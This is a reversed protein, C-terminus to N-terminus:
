YHLLEENYKDGKERNCKRCLIQLNEEVSLGGESMPKIHDIEFDRQSPSTKGCNQCTIIGDETAKDFTKGKLEYFYQPNHEKIENLPLKEIEKPTYKVNTDHKRKLKKNKETEVEKHFIDFNNNFFTNLINSDTGYWKQYMYDIEEDPDLKNDLIYDAIKTVNLKSRMIEDFPYYEPIVSQSAYYNIINKIDNIDYPPIMEVNFYKERVDDSVIKLLEESIYEDDIEYEEFIEGLHNMFEEYAEKTSDYIIVQNCLDSGDEQEYTFMYMGIPIREEFALNELASTDVSDDLMQAFEEIKKIQLIILQADQQGSSEDDNFEVEEKFILEPNVWTVKDNWKDVFSVIYADKTGGAKEGRLARGVMQTMRIMSTTPRTLFVTKTQPIDAGETLINVNILVDIEDNKFKEIIEDNRTQDITIGLDNQVSSIIFDSKVGHKKFVGNLAVAHEKNMAFVITKGYRDQEEVYKNVILNNRAKENGMKEMLDSPLIDSHTISRLDSASLEDVVFDTEISEQSPTSLIGRGILEKLTVDYTIGSANVVPKGDEVGDHFIKALQGQENKDVREDLYDIIKRYTKATAHHAEDIVLFVESQNELWKDMKDLKRGASDKSVLLLDDYPEIDVMRDHHKHGSIIRFKFSNRYPVYETYAYEKFSELAQEILMQRHAIWLIKKNENIANKLLWTSATYTKGVGTPLVVLTSFSDLQNIIDLNKKAAIQHSYSLRPNNRNKIIIEGRSRVDVAKSM